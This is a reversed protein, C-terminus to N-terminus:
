VKYWSCTRYKISNGSELEMQKGVSVSTDTMDDDLVPDGAGAGAGQGSISKTVPRDIRSMKRGGGDGMKEVDPSVDGNNTNNNNNNSNYFGLDQGFGGTGRARADPQSTTFSGLAM